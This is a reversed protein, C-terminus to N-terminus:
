LTADFFRINPLCLILVANELRLQKQLLLSFHSVM